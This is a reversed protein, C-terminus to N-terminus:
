KDMERAVEEIAGRAGEESTFSGVYEGRRWAAWTRLFHNRVVSGVYHRRHPWVLYLHRGEWHHVPHFRAPRPIM